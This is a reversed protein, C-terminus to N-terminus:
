QGAWAENWDIGKYDPLEWYFKTRPRDYNGIENMSFSDYLRGNIMTLSVSDTNEIDELPNKDMVIIDALKGVELSGIEDELGLTRAGNMTATRLVKHTDMGGAAMSWMEWHMALGFVQGHSGSNILVGAEDMKKTSRSVARFGVDWLEPAAKMTTMARVHFPASHPTTFVASYSSNTEQIYTQVKPNEWARTNEYLYNEGMMEGFTVNLTPTNAVGSHAALQVLDDYYTAVPINHELAMHGDLFVSLDLYFQSEGEADVMLGKERGAKVLQQRVRRSPQKYSKLIRGGLARKRDMINLADQYNEVPVFASDAKGARGYLVRGTSIFRPGVLRGAQQMETAAYATLEDTYPDYNTTVGFASSAYHSAHKQPMLGSYYCCAIHGHMDILGPMVTKGTTDVVYASDPINIEDVAGVAKIINGDVLVTGKAIVEEGKMTIVRGGTFAVLGTPIDTKAELGIKGVKSVTIEEGVTATLIDEGLTWFLASSDPAWSLNFGSTSTLKTVPVSANAASLQTVQGTEMYPMVYYQHMEKFAIWNGDPSRSAELRDPTNAVAHERLDFGERTTSLVKSNGSIKRVFYLRKGDQSYQLGTAAEGIRTPQGGGIPVRYIGAEIGYGGAITSGEEIVFALEKGDPSFAPFRLQSRGAVITKLRNGNMSAVILAGGKEDDWTSFAIRKGDNSFTPEFEFATEKTLRKPKGGNMDKLWLYGLAHFIANEGDPSVKFTQASKVVVSEPVLPDIFKVPEIITHKSEVEFPILTEEGTVTDIKFIKGKGWIAIHRNDPFWSFGPYYVGQQYFDAQQDRELNDYVPLQVGTELDLTFLVTKDKVRRVFALTEGDPSIQPSLAGGFGKILEITKGTELDRQLIGYNVHNAVVVIHHHELRKTYYLKKGDRSFEPEQVDRKNSPVEVLTTGNGGSAHYLRIESQQQTAYTNVMNAAAIYEGDPTWTPNALVNITEDTIMRPDSGDAGITWINEFGSRDSMYVIRSGDPSFTPTRDIAAGQTIAKAKGGDAPMIYLDGLLDFVITKGDPSVDVSMWTGETLMFSVDKTPQGTNEIDWVEDDGAKAEIAGVHTIGLVLMRMCRMLQNRVSM